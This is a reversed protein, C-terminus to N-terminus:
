PMIPAMNTGHEIHEINPCQPVMTRQMLWQQGNEAAVTLGCPYEAALSTRCVMREDACSWVTGEWVLWWDLSSAMEGQSVAFESGEDM